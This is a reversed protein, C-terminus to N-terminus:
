EEEIKVEALLKKQLDTLQSYDILDPRRLYTKRLAEKERWEEIKQHNGSTLVDPVTM